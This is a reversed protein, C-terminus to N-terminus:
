GNRRTDRQGPRRDARFLQAHRQTNNNIHKEFIERDAFQEHLAKVIEVSFPQPSIVTEQKKNLAVMPWPVARRHACIAGVITCGLIWKEAESM